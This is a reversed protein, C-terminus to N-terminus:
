DSYRLDTMRAIEEIRDGSVDFDGDPRKTVRVRRPDSRKRLDYVKMKPKEEGEVEEDRERKPIKQILLDKLEDIRIYAGASLTLEVKKGTAVEFNKKMEELMEPDCIDAKSMVIIEAKEKMAENWSELEKRIVKYNEIM